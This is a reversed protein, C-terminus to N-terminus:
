WRGTNKYDKVFLHEGTKAWHNWNDRLDESGYGDLSGNNEYYSLISEAFISRHDYKSNHCKCSASRGNDYVWVKPKSDCAPCNNWDDINLPFKYDDILDYDNTYDFEKIDM